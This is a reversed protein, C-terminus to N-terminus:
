TQLLNRKMKSLFEPTIGLYSAIHHQSVRLEVGPYQELFHLYRDKASAGVQWTFRRQWAAQNRQVLMRFFRELAPIRRLLEDKRRLDLALVLGPELSEIVIQAGKRELFSCVDSAWWGEIAFQLNIENGKDDFCYTRLCGQAVFWEFHCIQGLELLHQRKQVTQPVFFEAILHTEEESLKIEREIQRILLDNM